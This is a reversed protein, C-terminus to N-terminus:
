FHWEPHHFDREVKSRATRIQDPWTAAHMFAREAYNAEDAKVDAPEIMKPFHPHQKLIALVKDRAAPKLDRWAIQAIVQHGTGNWARAPVTTACLLFVLAPLRLTRM